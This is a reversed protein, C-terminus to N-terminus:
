DTWRQKQADIVLSVQPQSLNILKIQLEPNDMNYSLGNLELRKLDVFSKEEVQDIIRFQDISFQDFAVRQPDQAFGSVTLQDFAYLQYDQERDLTLSDDIQLNGALQLKGEAYRSQGQWRLSKSRHTLQLYDAELNNISINNEVDASIQQGIAIEFRSDLSIDGQLRDIYSRYFKAYPEFSLAKVALSGTIKRTENFLNLESTVSLDAQNVTMGLSLKAAQAPDWSQLNELTLSEIQALQTFEPERYTIKLNEFQLRNIGYDMPEAAEDRATSQESEAVPYVPIGNISIRGQDDRDIVTSLGSLTAENFLLRGSILDLMNVDVSLLELVAPETQAGSFRLQELQLTGAFPNFDIDEITVETAGQKKLQHALGWQMLLPLLLLILSFVLTTILSARFWRKQWYVLGVSQIQDM